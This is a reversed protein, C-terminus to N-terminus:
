LRSKQLFAGVLFRTVTVLSQFYPIAMFVAGSIGSGYIYEYKEKEMFLPWLPSFVQFFSNQVFKLIVLFSINKFVSSLIDINWYKQNVARYM